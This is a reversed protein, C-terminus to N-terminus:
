QHRVKAMEREGENEHCQASSTKMKMIKVSGEAKPWQYAMPRIRAMAAM